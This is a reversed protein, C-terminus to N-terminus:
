IERFQIIDTGTTSRYLGFVLWGDGSDVDSQKVTYTHYVRNWKGEQGAVPPSTMNSKNPSTLDTITGGWLADARRLTILPGQFADWDHYKFDFAMTIKEGAVFNHPIRVTNFRATNTGSDQDLR